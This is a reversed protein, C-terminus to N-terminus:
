GIIEGDVYMEKKTLAGYEDFFSWEGIRETRRLHSGFQIKSGLKGKITVRGYENYKIYEGNPYGKVFNFVEKDGNPHCYIWEGHEGM